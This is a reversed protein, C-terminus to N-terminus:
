TPEHPPQPSTEPLDDPYVVDIEVISKPFDKRNNTLFRDAGAKVATALHLADAARLGHDVALSLGLQATSGDAPITEIRSLYSILTLQEDADGTRLPRTLVEPLLLVSGIGVFPSVEPDVDFLAAVRRGLPNHVDAAYILVDADFAIM